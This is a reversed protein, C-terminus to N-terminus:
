LVVYQRRKRYYCCFFIYSIMCSPTGVQGMMDHGLHQRRYGYNRSVGFDDYDSYPFGKAIPSFAKIGYKKIYKGGQEEQIEYEGVFGGLVATYAEKYYDYYKMKETLAEMTTEGAILKEATKRIDGAADVGFNGGNGAAEYALLEIWDLHIDSGYTAIDYEYARCLAEYSVNFDVWKIYEGSVERVRTEQGSGDSWLQFALMLILATELIIAAKIKRGETQMNRWSM